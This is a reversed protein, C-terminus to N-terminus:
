AVTCCAEEALGEQLESRAQSYSPLALFLGIMVVSLGAVILLALRYSGSWDRIFGIWSSSVGGLIAFFSYQWSYARGYVTVKYYKATLYSILDSEAGVVLGLALAVFPFLAAQGSILALCAFGGLLCVGVGILPAHVLDSLWGVVLRGGVISLGMLSAYQAAEPATLGADRLLPVFQVILGLFGFSVTSLTAILLWFLGGRRIEAFDRDTAGSDLKRREDPNTTLLLLTFPISLAAVGALALFGTHWGYALIVHSVLQPVVISSIGIGAVTIGFALGRAKDFWSAVARTYGVPSSSAGLVGIMVMAVFFSSVSSMLSGMCILFLALLGAGLACPWKPGYRDIAWGAIPAGIALFITMVFIGTGFDGRSLGFSRQLDIAFLGFNYITLASIGCGVGLFASVLVPWARKFEQAATM